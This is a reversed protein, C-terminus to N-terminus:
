IIEIREECRNLFEAFESYNCLEIAGEKFVWRYEDHEDSLDPKKQLNKLEALWFVATKPINSEIEYNLLITENGIKLDDITYGSEEKTERKAASFDDEGGDIKGSSFFLFFDQVDLFSFLFSNCVM